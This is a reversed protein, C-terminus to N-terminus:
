PNNVTIKTEFALEISDTKETNGFVVRALGDDGVFLMLESLESGNADSLGLKVTSEAVGTDTAENSADARYVENDLDTDTSRPESDGTGVAVESVNDILFQRLQNKGENTLLRDIDTTM